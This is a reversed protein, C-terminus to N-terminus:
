LSTFNSMYVFETAKTRIQVVQSNLDVGTLAFVCNELTCFVGTEEESCQVEATAVLESDVFIEAYNVIETGVFVINEGDFDANSIVNARKVSVDFGEGLKSYDVAGGGIVSCIYIHYNGVPLQQFSFYREETEIEQKTGNGDLTIIKYSTADEIMGWSISNETVIASEYEISITNGDVDWLLYDSQRGNLDNETTYCASFRFKSGIVFNIDRQSLNLMNSSTKVKDIVYYDDDIFREITFRYDFKKNYKAVLVYDGDITQMQLSEIKVEGVDVNGFFVCCVGVIVAVFALAILSFILKHKKSM